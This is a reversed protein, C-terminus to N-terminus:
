CANAVSSVALLFGDMRNIPGVPTDCWGRTQDYFEYKECTGSVNGKNRLM